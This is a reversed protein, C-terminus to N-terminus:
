STQPNNLFHPHPIEWKKPRRVDREARRDMILVRVDQKSLFSLPYHNHNPM